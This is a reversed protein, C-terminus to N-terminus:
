AVTALSRLCEAGGGHLSTSFTVKKECVVVLSERSREEGEQGSGKSEGNIVVAGGSGSQVAADAKRCASSSSGTHWSGCILSAHLVLADGRGEGVVRLADLADVGLAATITLRVIEVKEFADVFASNRLDALDQLLASEHYPASATAHTTNFVSPGYLSCVGLKPRAHQLDVFLVLAPRAPSAAILVLPDVPSEGQFRAVRAHGESERLGLLVSRSARPHAPAGLPTQNTDLGM